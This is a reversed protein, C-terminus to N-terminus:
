FKLQLRLNLFAWFWSILSKFIEGRDKEPIIPNLLSNIKDLLRQLKSECKDTIIIKLMEAEKELEKFAETERSKDKIEHLLDDILSQISQFTEETTKDAVLAFQVKSRIVQLRKQMDSTLAPLNWQLLLREREIYCAKFTEDTYRGHVSLKSALSFLKKVSEQSKKNVENKKLKNYFLVIRYDCEQFLRQIPGNQRRCWTDFSEEEEDVLDGYTMIIICHKKVFDQGFMNKLTDVTKVDEATYRNSYKLVLLFADLGDKCQGMVLPLQQTINDRDQDEETDMLGPTDVLEVTLGDREVCRMSNIVTCSMTNNSRIFEEQGLITNGTGSKGNGTKGVLVFVLKKEDM